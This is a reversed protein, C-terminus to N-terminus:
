GSNVPVKFNITKGIWSLVNTSRFYLQINPQVHKHFVYTDLGWFTNLAFLYKQRRVPIDWCKLWSHERSLCAIGVQSHWASHYWLSFGQNPHPCTSVSCLLSIRAGSYLFTFSCAMWWFDQRALKDTILFRGCLHPFICYIIYIQITSYFNLVPLPRPPWM